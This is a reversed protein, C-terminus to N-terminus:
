ITNENVEGGGFKEYMELLCYICLEKEKNFNSHKAWGFLEIKVIFNNISGHKSCFYEPIKSIIYGQDTDTIKSIIYGQDTDTPM